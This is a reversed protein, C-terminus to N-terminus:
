RRWVLLRLTQPALPAFADVKGKEPEEASELDGGAVSLTFAATRETTNWLIVGFAKASRCGKAVVGDGSFAFGETDTFTGSMLLEAHRKQFAAVQKLYSATEKAPLTRVLGIDPKSLVTGYDAIEPIRGELLYDRDPLYRSEIEYRWGFACTYNVMPRDMLPSPFRVTSAVEPYTYRLLEPFLDDRGGGALRKAILGASEQFAGRVCGHFYSVSDLVADHFGETMIVFEPNVKRMHRAIERLMEKRDAEYSMFPAPHGHDAAYCATPGRVGLQDYLIGDAGFANAQEALALMRARWGETAHCGIDFHYGPTNGYKHWFEQVTGGDRRTVALFQGTTTWYATGREELQGNAYLVVRKGRAQALKIGERLAQEGGMLPCPDYDPYLHDHGGYGWGFLGLIDLGRADAVEALKGLSTYPWMIDGNQQKLIALLWGTATRAWAPQEIMEGASDVWARYTRAAVHWDGAYPMAVTAPVARREGPRVFLHHQFAAGFTKRAPDYRASLTKAGFRPDHCGFYLGAEEGAFALWQMTGGASPYNASVTLRGGSKSWPKLDADDAPVGRIRWGFGSPLLLPTKSLETKIGNFVPGTFSKVVWEKTGNRIEGGVDFATDTRRANLTLAVAFIRKGDSLTGYTLRVGDRTVSVEPEAQAQSEVLVDGGAGQGPAPELVLAWWAEGTAASAPCEAARPTLSMGGADMRLEGAAGTVVPSVDRAFGALTVSLVMVVILWRVSEDRM